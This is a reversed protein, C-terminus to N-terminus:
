ENKMKRKVQWRDDLISRTQEQDTRLRYGAAPETVIITPCSPTRELKERLQMIYGRLYTIANGRVHGWVTKVLFHHPLVHDPRSALTKLLDFERKTLHIDRGDRTVRREALDIRVDGADVIRPADRPQAKRLAVRVRAILEGISFPKVVYDNAGLDLVKVIMVEDACESLVIVPVTGKRGFAALVEPGIMAPQGLDLIILDFESEQWYRIGDPKSEAEEVLHGGTRLNICLFRRIKQDEDIILVRAM